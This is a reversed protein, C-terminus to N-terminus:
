ASGCKWNHRHEQSAGKPGQVYTDNDDHYYQHNLICWIMMMVKSQCSSWQHLCCAGEQRQVLHVERSPRSRQDGGKFDGDFMTEMYIM